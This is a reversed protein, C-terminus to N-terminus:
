LHLNSASWQRSFAVCDSAFIQHAGTHRLHHEPSEVPAFRIGFVECHHPSWSYSGFKAPYWGIAEIECKLAIAQPSAVPTRCFALTLELRIWLLGAIPSAEKSCSSSGLFFDCWYLPPIPQTSRKCIEYFYYNTTSLSILSWTIGFWNSTIGTVLPFKELEGM